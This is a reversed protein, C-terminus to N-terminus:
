GPILGLIADTLLQASLLVVLELNTGRISVQLLAQKKVRRRKNSFATDSDVHQTQPHLYNLGAQGLNNYNKKLISVECRRDFLAFTEEGAIKIRQKACGHRPSEASYFAYSINDTVDYNEIEKM